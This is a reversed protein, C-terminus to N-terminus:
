LFSQRSFPSRDDRFLQIVNSRHRDPNQTSVPELSSPHFVFPMEWKMSCMTKLPVVFRDTFSIARLMSDTPPYKIRKGPFLVGAVICPTPHVCRTPPQHERPDQASHLMRCLVKFFLLTHDNLFQLIRLIVRIINYVVIEVRSQEARV